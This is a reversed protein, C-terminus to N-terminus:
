SQRAEAVPPTWVSAGYREVAETTGRHHAGEILLLLGM